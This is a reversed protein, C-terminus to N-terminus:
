EGPPECLVVTRSTSPDVVVADLSKCLECQLVAVWGHQPCSVSPGPPGVRPEPHDHVELRVREGSEPSREM